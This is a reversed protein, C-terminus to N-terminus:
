GRGMKFWEESNDINKIKKNINNYSTDKPCSVKFTHFKNQHATFLNKSCDEIVLTEEALVGIKSIIKFYMEPDPKGNSVDEYSIILNFYELINLKSLVALVSEKMTNNTTLAMKYGDKLLKCFTKQIVPCSKILEIEKFTEKVKNNLILKYSYPSLGKENTLMELKGMLPKITDYKNLYDDISITYKKDILALCNNFSNFHISKMDIIVGGLDFIILKIM